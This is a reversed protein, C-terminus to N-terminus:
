GLRRWNVLRMTFACVEPKWGRPAVLTCPMPTGCESCRYAILGELKKLQPKKKEAM